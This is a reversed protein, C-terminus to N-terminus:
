IELFHIQNNIEVIKDNLNLHGTWTATRMQDNRFATNEVFLEETKAFAAFADGNGNRDKGRAYRGITNHEEFDRKKGLKANFDGCVVVFDSSPIENIATTLSDNFEHRLEPNKDCKTNTPAYCGLLSM